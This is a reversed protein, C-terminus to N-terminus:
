RTATRGRCGGRIRWGRGTAAQQQQQQQQQRTNLGAPRPTVISTRIDLGRVLPREDRTHTAHAVSLSRALASLPFLFPWSAPAALFVRLFACGAWCGLPMHRGDVTCAARAQLTRNTWPVNITPAHVFSWTKCLPGIPSHQALCTSAPKLAFAFVTLQAPATEARKATRKSLYSMVGAGMAYGFQVDFGMLQTGFRSFRTCCLGTTVSPRKLVVQGACVELHRRGGWYAPLLPQVDATDWHWRAPGFTTGHLFACHRAGYSLTREARPGQQEDAGAGAERSAESTTATGGPRTSIPRATTTTPGGSVRAVPPATAATLNDAGGGSAAARLLSAVVVALLRRILSM